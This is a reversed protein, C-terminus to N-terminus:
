LAQYWLQQPPRTQQAVSCRWNFVLTRYFDTTGKSPINQIIISQVLTSYFTCTGFSVYPDIFLIVCWKVGKVPIQKSNKTILQTISQNQNQVIM